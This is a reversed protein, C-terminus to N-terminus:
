KCEGKGCPSLYFRRLRTIITELEMHGTDPIHAIGEWRTLPIKDFIVTPNAALRVTVMHTKPSERVLVRHLGSGIAPLPDGDLPLVWYPEYGNM